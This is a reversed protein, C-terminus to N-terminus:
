DVGDNILLVDASGSIQWRSSAGGDGRWHARKTSRLQSSRKFGPSGSPLSYLMTTSHHLPPKWKSGGGDGDGSSM